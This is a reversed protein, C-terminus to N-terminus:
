LKCKSYFNLKERIEELEILLEVEKRGPFEETPLEQLRKNIQWFLKDLEVLAEGVQSNVSLEKDQENGNQFDHLLLKTRGALGSYRQILKLNKAALKFDLFFTSAKTFTEVGIDGLRAIIINQLKERMEMVKKRQYPAVMESIQHFQIIEEPTLILLIHPEKSDEEIQFSTNVPLESEQEDSIVDLSEPIDEILEIKDIASTPLADDNIISIIGPLYRDMMTVNTYVLNKIINFSLKDKFVDISTKYSINGQEIDLEFNGVVIGYNVRIIFESIALIKNQPVVEPCISYFSFQKDNRVLAYCNWTGNKGSFATELGIKDPIKRYPWDDVTFFNVMETFINQQNREGGSSEAIKELDNVIETFLQSSPIDSISSDVWTELEQNVKSLAEAIANDVISELGTEVSNQFFQFISDSIRESDLSNGTIATFNVYNWFTTYGTAVPLCPQTVQLALWNETFLLPHNAETQSLQELYISPNDLHDQFYPLFDPKLSTIIEINTENDFEGHTLSGLLEPQLNFLAATHIDRYLEPNLQLTLRSEILSDNQTTLTLIVTHIAISTKVTDHFSLASNLEHTQTHTTMSM